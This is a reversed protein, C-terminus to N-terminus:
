RTAEAITLIDKLFTNERDMLLRDKVEPWYDRVTEASNIKAKKLRRNLEELVRPEVAGLMDFTTEVDLPPRNAWGPTKTMVLTNRTERRVIESLLRDADRKERATIKFPESYKTSTDDIGTESVMERRMAAVVTAIQRNRYFPNLRKADAKFHANLLAYAKEDPDLTDLYANAATENGAELYNRYSVEARRLLGDVTSAYKWFDQSSTAGRRADRVFRRVIPVDTADMLPRDPDFSNYTSSIDRYASAGLGSLVHDVRMPSMGTAAGIQKALESTYNNYQLEPELGRMYDPVIERGGFFDFNATQEVAIQIAPPSTPPTLTMALGRLFRNKAEPDGSASEIARETFNALLALEFPKPIYFIRGDGMPIVWGTTRMYESADQYDPDDEFIFQLAASILGLGAMKVWAKRGTQLAQKETRSLDLNNINKFYARLAFNLGKRQRVEDGGLVRMMKYLGQLQANLFPILRRAATMRSGNLGFDMYDTATYSAEVAAEWDSLGDRKAREYSKKFLGLRTGTETLEVVKAMGGIKGMIGPDAFAKALYGKKRLANIDNEIRAKHLAAVNMGGMIGMAANYQRAWDGQRLEDGVGQLGTVFPKYGVDNLIFASMQDRIFNVILFDPWSTISARFATSTAAILDVFLPMNEKGIGSITQIVDRGLEGDALQIAAVKGQEWFFLINEGKTSAQEARFLSITGDSDISGQLMNMLDAADMETINEDQTLQRAVEQVSFQKGILQSAPIREVLAGVTGARDALKALALKTDNEAIARELAFTKHMLVDMPDIINRDSGKFQKVISRAEAGGTLASAGFAARKDSMDRQLPAYFQRDLGDRYTEKSIMGADYSKKWLAMGYENVIEAAQQFDTKYKADLDVVTQALDGRTAAVPPREIKGEDFRRYEDLGRLAVLYAAFDKQRVPDIASLQENGGKGHYRLLAERLGRSVTQVSRYGMVGDTTQVMARAGVNQALRILVRPDDARTVDLAKGKNKEGRNLIQTVLDNVGAYRNIAWELNNRAVEHMWTPFGAAQLEKIAANIGVNQQGTVIMNSVLQASPLQLWAAFQQGVLDLGQKLQPAGKDLAATFQQALTPYNVEAFRRNLTYVRFFEAFGEAIHEIRPMVNTDGGYLATAVKMLENENAKIFASLEGIADAQLAHGGEHVLTSLDTWTRIRVVDTKSSYQGMIKSGKLTFRGQRATLDLLRIVNRSIAALNLDTADGQAAPAAQESIGAEPRKQEAKYNGRGSATGGAMAMTSTDVVTGDRLLQLNNSARKGTKDVAANGKNRVIFESQGARDSIWVIDDVPVDAVIVDARRKDDEKNNFERGENISEIYSRVSEADTVMGDSAMIAIYTVDDGRIRETVKELWRGGPMDVRGDKNFAAEKEKIYGEDFLKAPKRRVGAWQQAFDPDTSWSLVAREDSDFGVVKRGEPVPKQARFLRVTDGVQERLSERVPAFAAEIENATEPDEGRAARELAAAYMIGSSGPEADGAPHGIFDDVAKRAKGQLAADAADATAKLKDADINQGPARMALMGADTDRQAMGEIKDFQRQTFQMVQDVVNLRDAQQGPLAGAEGAASTTLATAGGVLAGIAGQRVYNAIDFERSEDYLWKAVVDQGVNQGFEQIFEELSGAVTNRLMRSVLGGTAKEGRMLMRNLPIAETAGLGAGLVFSLYKQLGVGDHREADEFQQTAGSAAGFLTTGVAAPLGIASAVYGGIMYGVMSGGGASLESIFDKARVKDGPLMKDMTADVTDLWARTTSREGDGLNVADRVAEWMIAPAKSASLPVDYMSSSARQAADLWWTQTPQQSPDEVAAEATAKDKEAKAVIQADQAALTDRLEPDTGGPPVPMGMRAADEDTIGRLKARVDAKNQAATDWQRSFEARKDAEAQREEPSTLSGLNDLAGGEGAIGVVPGLILNRLAPNTIGAAAESLIDSRVDVSRQQPDVPPATRTGGLSTGAQLAAMMPQLPAPALAKAIGAGNGLYESQIRESFEVASTPPPAAKQTANQAATFQKMQEQLAEDTLLGPVRITPARFSPTNM